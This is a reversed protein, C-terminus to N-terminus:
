QGGSAPLTTSPPQVTTQSSGQTTTAASTTSTSALTTSPTTSASQEYDALYTGKLSFHYVGDRKKIYLPISAPLKGYDTKRFLIFGHEFRTISQRLEQMEEPFFDASAITGAFDYHYSICAFEGDCVIEDDIDVEKCYCICSDSKKCSAARKLVSSQEKGRITIADVEKPFGALLTDEYLYILGVTSVKNEKIMSKLLADFETLPRDDHSGFFNCGLNIIILLIMAGLILGLATELTSKDM